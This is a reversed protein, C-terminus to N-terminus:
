FSDPQADVFPPLDYGKFLAPHRLAMELALSKQDKRTHTRLMSESHVRYECLLEPLFVGRYGLDAFKCWLDFDEWGIGAALTSYGGVALLSQRRILAMADIYNGVVRFRKPDWIDAVGIMNQSGFLYLQSYAFAAGSIEIARVLRSLAPRRIRNDADLMFVFPETSWAVGSNRAMSLGLNRHHRILRVTAFRSYHRSLLNLALAGGGDSSCDDVIILSLPGFNQKFVSALCEELYQRYNYLPVIVCVEGCATSVHEYVLRGLARLNFNVPNSGRLSSLEIDNQTM